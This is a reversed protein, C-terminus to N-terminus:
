RIRLPTTGSHGFIEPSYMIDVKTPMATYKGPIEARMKYTLVHTGAPLNTFFFDIKEDRVDEHTIWWDYKQEKVYEAGAPFPEELHVYEYEQPTNITITVTFEKGSNLDYDSYTREIQFGNNKPKIENSKIFYDFDFSYYLKGTGEKAIKIASKTKPELEINVPNLVNQLTVIHEKVLEGDQYVSLSYSPKLENTKQLYQAIAEIAISTDKTSYWKNGRRKNLLYNIAPEIKPSNTDIQLLALTAYATTEIENYRWSYRENTDWRCENGICIAADKLQNIYDPYREDKINYLAMALLAKGYNNLEGKPFDKPIEIPKDLSLVYYIYARKNLDKENEMFYSLLSQANTLRAENVVFGSKKARLLGYVVYATMYPSGGESFWGFSGDNNQLEYLRELGKSVMEPLQNKLEPYSLDLKEMADLVVIDPLFKNMTQEVCGHPYGTLYQLSELIASAKTASLHLTFKSADSDIEYPIDVTKIREDSVEGAEFIQEEVGMPIIPITLEVADSEEDTLAYMTLKSSCCKNAKIQFDVRKDENPGVIVTKEAVDLNSLEGSLELRVLIEKSSPLYNHVVGSLTIEDNQTFFRPAEPRIIVNKRTLIKKIVQGAKFDQTYAKLTIRWTTLADALNFKVKAKGEKNTTQAPIWLLTDPFYRRVEPIAYKKPEAAKSVGGRTSTLSDILGQGINPAQAEEAMAKGSASGMSVGYFMMRSSIVFFAVLAIILAVVVIPIVLKASISIQRRLILSLALAIFGILGSILLILMSLVIIIWSIVIAIVLPGFEIVKSNMYIALIALVLLIGMTFLKAKQKLKEEPTTNAFSNRILYINGIIAFLVFIFVISLVVYLPTYDPKYVRYYNYYTSYSNVLNNIRQNFELYLDVSNDPYIDYIPEDVVGVSFTAVQPQNYEDKAEVDLQVPERISYTEKDTKLTINLMKNLPPVDIMKTASYLKNNKFFVAGFFINPSYEPLIPVEIIKTPGDFYIKDARYLKAGEITFLATMGSEPSEIFVRATEGPLYYSKDTQLKLNEYFGYNWQYIYITEQVSAKNGYNDTGTAQVIYSGGSKPVFKLEGYGNSVYVKEHLIDDQSQDHWGRYYSRKVTVDLNTTIPNADYDEVYFKVKVDDNISYYYRESAIDIKIFAAAVTLPFIKEVTKRSKDTAEVVVYYKQPTESKEPKFTITARGESDTTASSQFLLDGVGGYGPRYYFEYNYYCEFYGYCPRAYYSRYVKYNIQADKVPEGFYYSANVGLSVEENQLYVNKGSIIDVNFEPKRYQEVKFNFYQSNYYTNASTQLNLTYDGMTANQSLNYNGYIAGYDDTTYEKRFIDRYSPDRITVWVPIQKMFEKPETNKWLIAKFYVSQNTRYVPRDTYINSAIGGQSYYSSRYVIDMNSIFLFDDKSTVLMGRAANLNGEWSGLPSESTSILSTGSYFNFKAEVPQGTGSDVALIISDNEDAKAILAIDTVFYLQKSNYDNSSVFLYAGKDLKLKIEKVLTYVNVWEYERHYKKAIDDYGSNKLRYALKSSAKFNWEKIPQKSSISSEYNPFDSPNLQYLKVNLSPSSSSAYYTIEDGPRFINGGLNNFYNYSSDYPYYENMAVAPNVVRCISFILIFSIFFLFLLRKQM